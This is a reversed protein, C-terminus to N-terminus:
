AAKSVKNATISEVKASVPLEAFDAPRRVAVDIEYRNIGIDRLLRDSMTHLQRVTKRRDNWIVFRDILRSVVGREFSGTLVTASNKM